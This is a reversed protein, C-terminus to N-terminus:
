KWVILLKFFKISYRAVYATMFLTFVYPVEFCDLLWGLMGTTELVLPNLSVMHVSAMDFLKAAMTTGLKTLVYPLVTVMLFLYFGRVVVFEAAARAASGSIFNAIFSLASILFTM